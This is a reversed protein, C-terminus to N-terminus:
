QAWFGGHRRFRNAELVAVVQQEQDPLVPLGLEELIHRPSCPGLSLATAVIQLDQAETNSM